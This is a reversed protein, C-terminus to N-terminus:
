YGYYNPRSHNRGSRRRPQIPPATPTPTPLSRTPLYLDDLPLPSDPLTSPETNPQRSRVADM